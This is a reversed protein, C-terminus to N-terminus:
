EMGTGSCGLSAVLREERIECVASTSADVDLWFRLRLASSSNLLVGGRLFYARNGKQIAFMLVLSNTYSEDLLSKQECAVKQSLAQCAFLLNGKKLNQRVRLFALAWDLAYFSKSLSKQLYCVKYDGVCVKV